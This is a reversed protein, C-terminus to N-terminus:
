AASKMLSKVKDQINKYSREMPHLKLFQSCERLSASVGERIHRAFYKSILKTDKESYHRRRQKTPTLDDRSGDDQVAQQKDRLATMTNYASVAHRDGVIAQYYMAETNASHAMHRTVLHAQSSDGLNEAVCTAGIKRM